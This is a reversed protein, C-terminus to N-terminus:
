GLTGCGPLRVRLGEGEGGVGRLRESGAVVAWETHGTNLRWRAGRVQSVPSGESGSRPPQSPTILLEPSASPGQLAAPGQTAEQARGALPARVQWTPM